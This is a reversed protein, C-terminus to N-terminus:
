LEPVEAVEWTTDGEVAHKPEIPTHNDWYTQYEWGRPLHLTYRCTRVPVDEQFTWWDQYVTPRRRQQYEYGIVSGPDAAPISLLKVKSDSYMSDGLANTEVADKEKVEYEQGSGTVSWAKLWTLKTENDFHVVVHGYQRATPRLIRVARRYITHIEGNDAVTTIEEDLLVVAATDATYTPVPARALQRLWEPVSAHSAPIAVVLFLLLALSNRHQAYSRKSM